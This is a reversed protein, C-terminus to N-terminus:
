ILMSIGLAILIVGPLFRMPLDIGASKLIMSGGIAILISGSFFSSNM